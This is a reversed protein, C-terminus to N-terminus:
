CECMNWYDVRNFTFKEKKMRISIYAPAVLLAFVILVGAMRVSAQSPQPLPYM